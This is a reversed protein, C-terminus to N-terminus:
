LFNSLWSCPLITATSLNYSYKFAALPSHQVWFQSANWDELFIEMTLPTKLASQAMEAKLDEFRKDALEKEAYVEQLATIADSSLTSYNGNNKGGFM